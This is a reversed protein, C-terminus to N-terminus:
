SVIHSQSDNVRMKFMCLKDHMLWVHDMLGLLLTYDDNMGIQM